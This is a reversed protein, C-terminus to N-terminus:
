LSRTSERPNLAWGTQGSRYTLECGCVLNVFKFNTNLRMDQKGDFSIFHKQKGNQNFLKM